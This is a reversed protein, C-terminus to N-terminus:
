ALKKEVWNKAKSFWGNYYVVVAAATLLASGAIVPKHNAWLEPLAGKFGKGYMEKCAGTYAFPNVMKVVATVAQSNLCKSVFETVPTFFGAKATTESESAQATVCSLVMVLSLLSRKFM